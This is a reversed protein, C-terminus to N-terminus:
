SNTSVYNSEAMEQSNIAEQCRIENEKSTNGNIPKSSWITCRNKM